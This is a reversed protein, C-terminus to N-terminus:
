RPVMSFALLTFVVFSAMSIAVWGQYSIRTLLGDPHPARFIRWDPLANALWSLLDYGWIMLMGIGCVVIICLPILVYWLLGGAALLMLLAPAHHWLYVGAACAILLLLM